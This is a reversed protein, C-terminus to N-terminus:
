VNASGNEVGMLRDLTFGAEARRKENLIRTRLEESYCLEELFVETEALYPAVSAQKVMADSQSVISPMAPNKFRPTISKYEDSLEAISCRNLIALMMLGINRLSNGNTMNLHEAEIVLDEKAAYIAEASSPNDHIVGLSSIPISTEGSFRAALNRIYDTHPQMTGQSLQGFEPKNGDTDSSVAFVAGTYAEWKNFNKLATDDIGLLYKQPSTMFESAIETRLAERVASDTISMVSRSIRSKGFPRDITPRYVLPEILPRGILHEYRESKWRYGDDWCEIIASDTYLTLMTPKNNEFANIVMGCKVRKKRNDWIASAWIASHDVLLAEPEDAYGASVTVFSCSNILESTVLKSYMAKFNNDALVAELRGSNVGDGSFTFGDFRSRAALMDVAKAPWGVVTEVFRLNPPISIGLDKIRNKGDYYRNKIGNRHLKSKWVNLLAELYAQEDSTLGAVLPAEIENATSVSNWLPM